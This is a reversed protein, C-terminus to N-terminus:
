NCFLFRSINRATGQFIFKSFQRAFLKTGAASRPLARINDLSKDCHLLLLDNLNRVQVPQQGVELENNPLLKIEEEEVESDAVDVLAITEEM